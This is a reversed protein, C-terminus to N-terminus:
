HSVNENFKASARYSKNKKLMYEINKTDYLTLYTEVM